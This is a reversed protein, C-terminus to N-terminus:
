LRITAAPDIPRRDPSFDEPLVLRCQQPFRRDHLVPVKDYRGHRLMTRLRQGLPSHARVWHRGQQERAHHDRFAFRVAFNEPLCARVPVVATVQAMAVDGHALIHRLHLVGALYCSLLLLGPVVACYFAGRADFFANRHALLSGAVCSLRPQGALYEVAIAQGPAYTDAPVEGRNTWHHGGAEFEYDVFQRGRRRSAPEASVSRVVATIQVRPGATLRDRDETESSHALFLMWAVVGGYVLLLFTAAALPWRYGLVRRWAVRRPAPPIRQVESSVTPLRPM